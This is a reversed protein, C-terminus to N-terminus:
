KHPRSGRWHDRRRTLTGLPGSGTVLHWQVAHRDDVQSIAGRPDARLTSRYYRLLANPDLRAAGPDGGLAAENQASLRFIAPAARLIQDASLNEPAGSFVPTNTGTATFRRLSRWKGDRGKTIKGADALISLESYIESRTRPDFDGDLLAFLQSTTRGSPFAAITRLLVSM